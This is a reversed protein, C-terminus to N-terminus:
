PEDRGSWFGGARLSRHPAGLNQRVLLVSVCGICYRVPMETRLRKQMLASPGASSKPKEWWWRILDQRSAFFIGRANRTKRAISHKWITKRARDAKSACPNRLKKTRLIQIRQPM